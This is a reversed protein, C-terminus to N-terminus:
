GNIAAQDAILTVRPHHRLFSAPFASSISGNCLRDLASTKKIGSVLIVIERAAMITAIGITLAHTPPAGGALYMANQELTSTTLQIVHSRSDEPTGPENFAIHGNLGLGLIQCDIGGQKRIAAEYAQCEAVPDPADGQWLRAHTPSIGLPDLVHAQIYAAFSRPDTKSMGVYEDLNFCFVHDLARGRVRKALAKYASVPTTGTACGLNFRNRTTILSFLHDAATEALQNADHVQVLNIM